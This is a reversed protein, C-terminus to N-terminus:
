KGAKKLMQLPGMKRLAAHAEDMTQAKMEGVSVAWDLNFPTHCVICEKWNLRVHEKIARYFQRSMNDMWENPPYADGPYEKPEGGVPHRNPCEISFLLIM